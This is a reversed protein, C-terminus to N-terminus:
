SVHTSESSEPSAGTSANSIPMLRDLEAEVEEDTPLRRSQRKAKIRKRVARACTQMAARDQEPFYNGLGAYLAFGCEMMEDDGMSEALEEETVGQQELQPALVATITAWLREVDNALERWRKANNEILTLLEVGTRQKVRLVTGFTVEMSWTRGARDNFCASM